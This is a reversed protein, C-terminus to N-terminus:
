QYSATLSHNFSAISPRSAQTSPKVRYQELESAAIYRSSHTKGAFQLPGARSAISQVRQVEGFADAFENSGSTLSDVSHGLLFDTAADLTYKFFLDLADVERGKGGLLPLLINVHHEFIDLDSVRDKIFQPRLLQRSNHWLKGDTTFISDGLFDHWERNFRPGKGYDQFQTALIAKINEPDATFVIRRGGPRIEATYPDKPNGHKLLGNLWFEYDKNQTGKIVGEAIVDFSMPVWGKRQSGRKGLKSIKYDEIKATVQWYVLFLGLAGLAIRVPTLQQIIQEIM